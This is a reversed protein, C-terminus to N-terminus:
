QIRGFLMGAVLSMSVTLALYAATKRTGLLKNLVLLNPLSLANGTLLLAMAPGNGMGLDMLAELIPIETLTAFYMLAGSVSAIANAAIGNGGVLRAVVDPPLVVTMLGALFVGVFLYPMIQKTFVWTETMWYRRDESGFLQFAMMVIAVLLVGSVGYRVGGPLNGLGLIVLLGVQSGL